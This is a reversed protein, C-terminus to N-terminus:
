PGTRRFGQSEYDRVCRADSNKEISYGIAGGAVSGVTGGGCRALQGTQENKLMVVPTACGALITLVLLSGLCGRRKM